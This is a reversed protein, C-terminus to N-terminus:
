LGLGVVQENHQHQEDEWEAGRSEPSLALHQPQADAPPLRSLAPAYLSLCLGPISGSGQSVDVAQHRLAAQDKGTVKKFYQLLEVSASKLKSCLAPIGIKM